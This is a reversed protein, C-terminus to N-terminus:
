LTCNFLIYINSVACELRISFSLKEGKRIPNFGPKVGRCNICGIPCLGRTASCITKVKFYWSENRHYFQRRGPLDKIQNNLHLRVNNKGALWDNHRWTCLIFLTLWDSHKKCEMLVIQRLWGNNYIQSYISVLILITRFGGLRHM